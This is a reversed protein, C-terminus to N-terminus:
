ILVRRETENKEGSKKWEFYMLIGDKVWWSAMTEINLAEKALAEAVLRMEEAEKLQQQQLSLEECWEHRAEQPFM